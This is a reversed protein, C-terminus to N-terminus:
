QVSAPASDAIEKCPYGRKLWDLQTRGPNATYFGKGYFVARLNRFFEDYMTWVKELSFNAEAWARCVRRDIIDIHKAAWYFQEMTRCRYGTIGHLNNESFAGWDSTIIPTGCLLAEV